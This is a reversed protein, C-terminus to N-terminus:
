LGSSVLKMTFEYGNKYEGTSYNKDVNVESRYVLGIRRAYKEEHYDYGILTNIDQHIATAVSDYVVTGSIYPEDVSAYYSNTAANTNLANLDWSYGQKVPFIMKVYKINDEQTEVRSSTVTITHNAVLQYDSSDSKVFKRFIYTERNELDYIISDMVLKVQYSFTDIKVPDYFDNYTISDVQYIYWRGLETPFYNAGMDLPQEQESECGSTTTIILFLILFYYISKM